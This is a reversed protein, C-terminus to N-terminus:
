QRTRIYKTLESDTLSAESRRDQVLGLLFNYMERAM